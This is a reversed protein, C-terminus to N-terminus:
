SAIGQEPYIVAMELRAGRSRRDVTAHRRGVARQCGAAAAATPTSRHTSIWTVAGLAIIEALRQGSSLELQTSHDWDPAYIAQSNSNRYRWSFVVVLGMVPVVIV